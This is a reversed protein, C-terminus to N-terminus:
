LPKTAPINEPIAFSLPLDMWVQHAKSAIKIRDFSILDIELPGDTHREFQGRRTLDEIIVTICTLLKSV